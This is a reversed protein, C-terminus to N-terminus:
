AGGGTRGPLCRPDDLVPQLALEGAGLLIADEGLAAPVIPVQSAADLFSQRRVTEALREPMAARVDAFLGGLVIRDPNFLNVLAALAGGLRDSVRRVAARAEPDTEAARVIGRALAEVDEDAGLGRVLPEPLLALPDAEVELCGRNGCHCPRGRPEVTIHGVELAYGASGTFLHGGTVLAGGVGRAATTVFLMDSTGTGAGHRHEALAALNADNGVHVPVAAGAKDVLAALTERVPVSPPWDLYLAALAHEDARSVASPVAVGLGACPRGNSQLVELATSAVAALVREPTPPRPLAHVSSTVVTGGIGVLGVRFVRARIQVAVVVPGAPHALVLHSPRGAVGAPPPSTEVAILRLARLEELVVGTASRSLGLRATLDSRRMPGETHVLQLAAALNDLRGSSPRRDDAHEARRAGPAPM